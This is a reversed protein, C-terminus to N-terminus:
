VLWVSGVEPHDLSLKTHLDHLQGAGALVFHRMETHTRPGGQTVSVDHRCTPPLCAHM